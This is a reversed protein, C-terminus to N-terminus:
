LWANSVSSGKLLIVIVYVREDLWHADDSWSVVVVFLCVSLCGVHCELQSTMRHTGLWLLEWKCIGGSKGEREKWSKVIELKELWKETPNIGLLDMYLYQELLDDDHEGVEAGIVKFIGKSWSMSEAHQGHHDMLNDHLDEIDHVIGPISERLTDIKEDDDTKM